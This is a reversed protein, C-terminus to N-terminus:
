EDEFKQQRRSTGQLPGCTGSHGQVHHPEQRGTLGRYFRGVAEGPACRQYQEWPLVLEVEAVEVDFEKALHRTLGVYTPSPGEPPVFRFRCNEEAHTVIPARVSEPFWWVQELCAQMYAVAGGERTSPSPEESFIRRIETYADLRDKGLYYSEPYGGDTDPGSGYKVGAVSSRAGHIMRDLFELMENRADDLDSHRM